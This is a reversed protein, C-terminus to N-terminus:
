RNKYTELIESESLDIRNTLLHFTTGEEDVLEIYRCIEKRTLISVLDNRKLHPLTSKYVRIFEVLFTKRVRLLFQINRERWGGIKTERM